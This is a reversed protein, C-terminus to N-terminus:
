NQLEMDAKPHKCLPCIYDDPLEGDYEQIYGCIRCVYVNKGSSKQIPAPKPKIKDFYYQYSLSVGNSLVASESVSATFLTHTGYDIASVVDGSFFSNTDRTIYYLGNNSKKCHEEFGAFKDADRGSQFGFRKFVDFDSSTTLVSINFKGTDRILDHTYNLKNVAIVIQKPDDTIQMVTNIICGSHNGALSSKTDKAASLVFLGYTIKFFAEPEIKVENITNAEYITQKGHAKFSTTIAKTLNEIEIINDQKVSSKLSVTNDLFTTNELDSLVEKMMKGSTAAWSGNEIFAITRNKVNHAAICHILTEMNIFIGANYTTSALVLHSFRFVQSLVFSPHTVSVDFMAIKKVGAEALNVALINVANETNGYVSSYAILVGEEEPTYTSWKQYKDIYYSINKRWIPGHLPLLATVELSALKKLVAQVQPGYKAVINTYYRRSEELFDRDFDLEDAFINGNLTGFTGFADASYLYGNSRDFTFMVEPWHVMPATYFVFTHKGTSIEDGDKVVLAHREVDFDFFQKIMPITRSNGIIKIDPYRLILDGLAASHDPEMHNIVVFDLKKGKLLYKLNEFFVSSGSKDVCDLLITKEDLVLYSNYSIGYPIPFVSEFLPSKKDNTGVWFVDNDIIRTNHM